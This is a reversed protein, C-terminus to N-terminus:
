VMELVVARMRGADDDWFARRDKLRDVTSFDIGETGKIPEKNLLELELFISDNGTCFDSSSHCATKFLPACRMGSMGKVVGM